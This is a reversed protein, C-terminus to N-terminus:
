RLGRPRSGGRDGPSSAVCACRRWRWWASRAPPWCVSTRTPASSGFGEPLEGSEADVVVQTARIPPRTPSRAVDLDDFREADIADSASLAAALERGAPGAGQDVVGVRFADFGGIAVGIVLIILVPLVVLFFLAIRDRALRRLATAALAGVAAM